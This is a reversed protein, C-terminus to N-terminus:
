CNKELLYAAFKQDDKNNSFTAKVFKEKSYSHKKICSILFDLLEEKDKIFDKTNYQYTKEQIKIEILHLCDNKNSLYRIKKSDIRLDLFDIKVMLNNNHIFFKNRLYSFFIDKDFNIQM